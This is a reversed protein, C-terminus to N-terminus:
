IYFHWIVWFEFSPEKNKELGLDPTELFTHLTGTPYFILSSISKRSVPWLGRSAQLDSVSWGSIVQVSNSLDQFYWGSGKIREFKIGSKLGSLCVCMSPCVGKWGYVSLNYQKHGKSVKWESHRHLIVYLLKFVQTHCTCNKRWNKEKSTLLFYGWKNLCHISFCAPIKLFQLCILSFSSISIHYSDTKFLARSM